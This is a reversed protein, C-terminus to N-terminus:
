MEHPADITDRAKTERAESWGVAEATIYAQMSARM